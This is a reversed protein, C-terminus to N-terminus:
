IFESHTPGNRLNTPSQGFVYDSGASMPSLPWINTNWTLNIKGRTSAISFSKRMFDLLRTANDTPVGHLYFTLRGSSEDSSIFKSIWYLIISSRAYADEQPPKLALAPCRYHANPRVTTSSTQIFCHDLEVTLLVWAKLQLLVRCVCLSSSLVPCGCASIM